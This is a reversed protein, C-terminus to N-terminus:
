RGQPARDPGTNDSALVSRSCGTNDESCSPSDIFLSHLIDNALRTIAPAATTASQAQALVFEVPDSTRSGPSEPTNSASDSLAFASM